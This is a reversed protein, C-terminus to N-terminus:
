GEQGSVGTGMPERGYGLKQRPPTAKELGQVTDEGRRRMTRASIEGSDDENGASKQSITTTIWGTESWIAERADGPRTDVSRGM